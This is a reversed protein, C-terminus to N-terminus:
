LEKKLEEKTKRRLENRDQYLKYLDEIDKNLEFTDDSDYAFKMDDIALQIENVYFEQDEKPLSKFYTIARSMKDINAGNNLLFIYDKKVNKSELYKTIAETDESDILENFKKDQDIKNVKHMLDKYAAIYNRDFMNNPDNDKRWRQIEKEYGEKQRKKSDYYQTGVGFMGPLLSGITKALGEEKYIDSMDQLYLPIAENKLTGSLTIDEGAFGKGLTLDLGLSAIPSAKSRLFGLIVSLRNEYPFVNPDLKVIEGTSTRKRKGLSFQTLTRIWQQFGAWIDYRTDGVKIKGFDSSRPDLEVDAGSAAALGLIISGMGVYSIVNKLAMKRVVPPMKAYTVPNLLNFRSAVLRPSFMGVNLIDAISELKGLNGRGTANNIFNAWSKFVEPDRTKSYGENVMYEVGKDFVDVRLKNLYGVYARESKVVIGLGPVTITKSGIKYKQTSGWIPIKHAINTMFSEEKASLKATPESIYLKSQRMFQYEPSVKLEALWRDAKKGSFAQRFMEKTAAGAEKPNAFSLLAGQRLPASLDASAMLSKPLNIADVIIDRTKQPGTRNERKAKEYELDFQEKLQNKKLELEFTERDPELREKKKVPNYDKTKIREEYVSISKKLGKKYNSLREEDTRGSLDMGLDKASQRIRRKLEIEKASKAVLKKGKNKVIRSQVDEYESILRGIRNMENIKSQIEDKSMGSERGYKTIADRVQRETVDKDKLQGIIKSTLDEINDVGEGVYKRILSNPVKIKGESVEPKDMPLLDVLYDKVKKESALKEDDKLKSYWESEKLAQIAKQLAEAITGGAEITRAAIEISGNWVEKFFPIGAMAIDADIKGKRLIDAFEKAREKPPRYNMLKTDQQRIQSILEQNRLSENEKEKTRLKSNLEDIQKAYDNFKAEVEPSIEGNNVEKYKRIQTQLNYESDVLAQRLRFSLGQVYATEVAMKRYSEMEAQIGEFEVRANYEDEINGEKKSKDIRDYLEDYKNDLKAKYYIFGTVEEPNLARPNKNIDEILERPKLKGNDVLERGKDMWEKESLKEKDWEGEFLEKKIGSLKYNDVVSTKPESSVPPTEEPKIVQNEQNGTETGIEETRQLDQGSEDKREELVDRGEQVPEENKRIEGANEEEKLLGERGKEKRVKENEISKLNINPLSQKLEDIAQQKEKTYLQQDLLDNIGKITEDYYEKKLAQKQKIVDVIEANIKDVQVKGESKEKGELNELKIGDREKILQDIKKDLVEVEPLKVKEINNLEGSVETIKEINPKEKALEGNIYSDIIDIKEKNVRPQTIFAIKDKLQNIREKNVSQFTEDLAENQKTLNDKEMVIDLSRAFDEPAINKPLKGMAVQIDQKASQIDKVITTTKELLAWTLGSENNGQTLDREPDITAKDILNNAFSASWGTAYGKLAPSTGKYITQLSNELLSQTSKELITKTEDKGITEVMTKVNGAVEGGGIKGLLYFNMATGVSNFIKASTPIDLDKVEEYRKLGEGTSLLTVVENMAGAKNGAIFSALLPITEIINLATAGTASLYDKKSTYEDLSGYYEQAKRKHYEAGEQFTKGLGILSALSADFSAIGANLTYNAAKIWSRNKLNEESQVEEIATERQKNYYDITEKPIVYREGIKDMGVKKAEQDLEVQYDKILLKITAEDATKNILDRYKNDLLTKSVSLNDLQEQPTLIEGYRSKVKDEVRIELAEQKTKPKPPVSIPQGVKIIPEEYFTQAEGQEIQVKPKQTPSGVTRFGNSNQSKSSSEQGVSESPLNQNVGTQSVNKKVDLPTTDEYKPAEIPKTDEYKPTKSM